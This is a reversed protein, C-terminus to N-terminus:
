ALGGRVVKLGRRAKTKEAQARAKRQAQIYKDAREKLLGILKMGTDDLWPPPESGNPLLVAEVLTLTEDNARIVSTAAGDMGRQRLEDDEILVSPQCKAELLPM